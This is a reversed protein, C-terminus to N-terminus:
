LQEEDIVPVLSGPGFFATEINYTTVIGPALPNSDIFNLGFLNTAEVIELSGGVMPYNKQRTVQWEANGNRVYKKGEISVSNQLFIRNLIDIVYPAVGPAEGIYLKFKRFAVGDLIEANHVQNFYSTVDAGPEFDMIEMECRFKMELGTTWAVGDKNFTNSYTILHTTPWSVKSHIPESIAAFDVSLLTVLQYIWYFGEPLDSIDFTCEYIAYATSNFVVSWAISKVATGARNYVKLDQPAISSEIQLITTDTKVWKQQYCTKTEFAKIQEEFWSDDFHYGPNSTNPLFKFPNLYPFVLHNAM